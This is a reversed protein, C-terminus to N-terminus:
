KKQRNYSILEKERFADPSVETGEDSIFETLNSCGHFAWPHVKKLSKNCVFKRLNKCDKFTFPVISVVKEPLKIEQVGSRAFAYDWMNTLSSPLDVSTLNICGDFVFSGIDTVSDPIRVSTIETHGKFLRDFLITVPKGGYESPIIVDSDDGEYETVCYTGDDLLKYYYNQMEIKRRMGTYVDIM